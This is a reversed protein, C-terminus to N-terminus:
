DFERRCLEVGTQKDFVTVVLPRPYLAIQEDLSKRGNRFFLDSFHASTETWPYDKNTSARKVEIFKGCHYYDPHLRHLPYAGKFEEEIIRHFSKEPIEKTKLLRRM